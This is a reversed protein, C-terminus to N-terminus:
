VGHLHIRFPTSGGSSRLPSIRYTLGGSGKRSPSLPFKARATPPVGLHEFNYYVVTHDSVPNTTQCLPVPQQTENTWMSKRGLHTHRTWFTRVATEVKRYIWTSSFGKWFRRYNIEHMRHSTAPVGADTNDIQVASYICALIEEKNNWSM